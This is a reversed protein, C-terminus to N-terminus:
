SFEPKYVKGMFLITGTKKEEIIFMFPHDAIFVIYRLPASSAIVRGVTIAIAETGEEDTKIYAEHIATDIFLQDNSIKSLDAELTFVKTLNMKMLIDKLDYKNRIEFKPICIKKAELSVMSNKWEKYKEYSISNLIDSSYNKPLIIIMSSEDGKYSLEIMQVEENEFYNFETNKPEMCMMKVKIKTNENIWFDYDQTKSKDFKYKWSGKFYVVNTIVMRTYQNITGPSLLETIKGKTKKSIYNNITKRSGEPDNRFDLLRLEAGFYKRINNKYEDYVPFDKQIWIANTTRLEVYKQENIRNYIWAFNPEFGELFGFIKQMESKTDGESGEYVIAFASYISYPSFVINDDRNITQFLNFSFNGISDVIKNVGEETFGTEDAKPPSSFDFLFFIISIISLATIGLILFLNRKSIKYKLNM